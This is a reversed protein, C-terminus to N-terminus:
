LVKKKSIIMYMFVVIPLSRKLKWRHHNSSCLLEYDDDYLAFISVFLMVPDQSNGGDQGNMGTKAAVGDIRKSDDKVDDKM